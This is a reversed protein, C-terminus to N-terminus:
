LTVVADFGNQPEMMLKFFRVSPQTSAPEVMLLITNADYPVGVPLQPEHATFALQLAAFEVVM